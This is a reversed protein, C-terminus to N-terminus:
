ANTKIVLSRLQAMMAIAQATFPRCPTLRARKNEIPLRKLAAVPFIGLGRRWSSFAGISCDRNNGHQTVESELHLPGV